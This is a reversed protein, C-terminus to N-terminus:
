QLPPDATPVEIRESFSFETLRSDYPDLFFFGHYRWGMKLLSRGFDPLLELFDGKTSTNVVTQLIGHKRLTDVTRIQLNEQGVYQTLYEIGQTLNENATEDNVRNCWKDLQDRAHIVRGNERYSMKQFPSMNITPDRPAFNEQPQDGTFVRNGEFFKSYPRRPNAPDPNFVKLWGISVSTNGTIFIHGRVYISTLIQSDGGVQANESVCGSSVHANGYIQAFNLVTSSRDVIANDSIVAYHHLQAYGTILANGQVIVRDFIRAKGSIVAHDLIQVHGKLRVTDLVMAEPAVYVGEAVQATTSVWGGLHDQGTPGRHLPHTEPYVIRRLVQNNFDRTEESFIPMLLGTEKTILPIM